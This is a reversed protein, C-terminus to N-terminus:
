VSQGDKETSTQSSFRIPALNVIETTAGLHTYSVPIISDIELDVDIADWRLSEEDPMTVDLVDSVKANRFWPYRDYSLYYEKGGVFLLIGRANIMTVEATTTGNKELLVSM